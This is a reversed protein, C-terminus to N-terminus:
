ILLRSLLAVDEMVELGHGLCFRAVNPAYFARDKTCLVDAGAGVATYLIPDDDPDNLIVPIGIQPVIIRAIRRLYAVHEHVEDPTIRLIEQLHPYSLAKGVEGLIFPSLALVHASNAALGDVLRRAPGNSRATARVLIGTDLTVVM